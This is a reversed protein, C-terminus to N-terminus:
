YGKSPELGVGSRMTTTAHHERFDQDCVAARDRASDDAGQLRHVNARDGDEAIGVGAGAVDRLGVFGDADARCRCRFAVQVDLRDQSGGFRCARLRDMGAVSEKGLVGSEGFCTGSAADCEDAGSGAVDAGEAQLVGRPRQGGLIAHRQCWAGIQQGVLHRRHLRRPPDAVRDDEFCGGASAANAHRHAGALRVDALAEGRDRPQAGAVEAIAADEEFAIHRARAVDLHLHEAIASAMHHRKAFAVARELATVLLHNLLRGRRQQGGRGPVRQDIGGDAQGSARVIARCARDLEEVVGFPVVEEEKLDVGTKLDLMADGLLHSADVQDFPHQAARGAIEGEEIAKLRFGVARRDLHAKIGLIRGLIIAGTGAAEDANGPGVPRPDVAPDIGAGFHGGPVIRHEGLQDDRRRRALRRHRRHLDREVM